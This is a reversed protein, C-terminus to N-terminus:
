DDVKYAVFTGVTGLEFFRKALDDRFESRQSSVNAFARSPFMSAAAFLGLAQRRNIM